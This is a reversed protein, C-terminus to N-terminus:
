GGRRTMEEREEKELTDTGAASLAGSGRPVTGGIESSIVSGGLPLISAFMASGPPIVGSAGTTGSTASSRASELNALTTSNNVNFSDEMVSRLGLLVTFGRAGSTKSPVSGALSSVNRKWSEMYKEVHRSLKRSSSLRTVKAIEYRFPM